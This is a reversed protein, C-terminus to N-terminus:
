RANNQHKLRELIQLESLFRQRYLETRLSSRLVKIAVQQSFQGDDRHARYVTGMGGAGLVSDCLYPGFRPLAPEAPPAPEPPLPVEASWFKYSALLDEVEKRLAPDGTCAQDLYSPGRELAAHFLDEVLRYRLDPAM